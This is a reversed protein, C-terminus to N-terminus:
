TLVGSIDRLFPMIQLFAKGRHSIERKVPASLEGFTMEHGDPIFIPDYGFGQKGRPNQTIRGNCIGNASLLIKGDQAAIAISCVFRARREKDGTQALEGLLLNIKEAFPTDVGGYRASLVGPRGDLADVELGSDDALATLGTQRAYGVAKLRANEDFTDGTEEINTLDAFSDLGVIEVPIDEIMSLLEAVKGANNTAILLKKPMEGLNCAERAAPLAEHRCKKIALACLYSNYFFYRNERQCM